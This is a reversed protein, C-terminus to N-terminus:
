NEIKGNGARRNLCTDSYYLGAWVPPAKEKGAM